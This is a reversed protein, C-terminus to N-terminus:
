ASVVRALNAGRDPSWERLRERLQAEGAENLLRKPIAAGAGNPRVLLYFESNEAAKAFDVWPYRADIHSCWTRVGAASIEVFHTETAHADAGRLRRANSRGLAQLGSVTALIAAIGIIFTTLRTAPTFVYSALAVAAYLGLLLLNGRSQSVVTRAIAACARASEGPQPDIQFRLAQDMDFTTAMQRRLEAARPRNLMRYGTQALM